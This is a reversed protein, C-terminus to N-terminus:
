RLTAFLLFNSREGKTLAFSSRENAAENGPDKTEGCSTLGQSRPQSMQDKDVRKVGFKVVSMANSVFVIKKKTSLDYWCLVSKFTKSCEFLFSSWLVCSLLKFSFHSFVSDGFNRKVPFPLLCFMM